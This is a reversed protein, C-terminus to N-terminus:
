MIKTLFEYADKQENVANILMTRSVNCAIDKYKSCVTVIVTDPSLKQSTNMAEIKLNYQGGSQVNVPFAFELCSEDLKSKLPPPLKGLFADMKKRSDFIKDFRASISDHKEGKNFEFDDEIELILQQM